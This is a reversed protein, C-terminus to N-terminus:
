APGTWYRGYLLDLRKRTEPPIFAPDTVLASAAAHRCPCDDRGALAGVLGPLAGKIDQVNQRMTALVM